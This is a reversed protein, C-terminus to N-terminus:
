TSSPNLDCYYGIPYMTNSSTALSHDLGLVHGVEHVFISEVYHEYLCSSQGTSAFNHGNENTTVDSDVIRWSGDPRLETIRHTLAICNGSCSRYYVSDYFAIMPIGDGLELNYDWVLGPFAWVLNDVGAGNWALSSNIANATATVGRDIDQVSYIGVNDVTLFIPVYDWNARPAWTM